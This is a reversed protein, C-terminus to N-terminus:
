GITGRLERVIQQLRAQSPEFIEEFDRLFLQAEEYREDGYREDRMADRTRSLASAIDLAGALAGSLQSLEQVSRVPAIRQQMMRLDDRTLRASSAFDSMAGMLSRALDLRHHEDLASLWGALVGAMTTWRRVAAAISTTHVALSRELTRHLRARILDCGCEVLRVAHPEVLPSLRQAANDATGAGGLTLLWLLPSGSCLRTAMEDALDDPLPLRTINEALITFFLWDGPATGHIVLLDRVLRKSGRVTGDQRNGHSVTEQWRVSISLLQHTSIEALKATCETFRFDFGHNLDADFIRGSVRRRQRLVTRERWGGRHVLESTCHRVIREMMVRGLEPRAGGSSLGAALERLPPIQGRGLLAGLVDLRQGEQWTLPADPVVTNM